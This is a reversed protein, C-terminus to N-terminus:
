SPAGNSDHMVVDIQGTNNIGHVNSGTPTGTLPSFDFNTFTYGGAAIPGGILMVGARVQSPTLAAFFLTALGAILWLRRVIATGVLQDCNSGVKSVSPRM